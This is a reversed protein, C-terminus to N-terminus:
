LWAAMVVNQEFQTPIVHLCQLVAASCYQLSGAKVRPSAGERGRVRTGIGALSPYRSSILLPSATTAVLLLYSMQKDGRWRGNDTDDFYHGHTSVYTADTTEGTESLVRAFRSENSRAM